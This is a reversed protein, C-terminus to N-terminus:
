LHSFNFFKLTKPIFYTIFLSFILGLIYVVIFDFFGQSDFSKALSTTALMAIFVMGISILSLIFNTVSNDKLSLLSFGLFWGM